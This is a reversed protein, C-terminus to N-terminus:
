DNPIHWDIPEKGWQRLQANIQSFPKSGFFGRYASLPSPHASEIVKHRNMDIMQAKKRAANGWLIFIVPDQRENIRRIVENTLVEWGQKQHSNAQGARVTLVTNLLLVGQRAWASLDGHSAPPIGLDAELEQYINRLSPPIAQDASVSFALGNAQNPGHYPDQGLIVVKIDTLDTLNLAQFIKDQTPYITHYRHEEELFATLHAWTESQFYPVLAQRWSETLTWELM